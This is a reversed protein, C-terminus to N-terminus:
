FYLNDFPLTPMYSVPSIGSEMNNQLQRDEDMGVDMMDYHYTLQQEANEGLVQVARTM